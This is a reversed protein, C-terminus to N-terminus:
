TVPSAFIVDCFKSRSITGDSASRGDFGVQKLVTWHAGVMSFRVTGEKLIGGALRRFFRLASAPGAPTADADVKAVAEAARAGAESAERAAM